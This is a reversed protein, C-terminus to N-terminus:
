SPLYSGRVGGLFGLCDVFSVFLLIELVVFFVRFPYCCKIIVAILIKMAFSIIWVYCHSIKRQDDDSSM